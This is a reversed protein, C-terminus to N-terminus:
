EFSCNLTANQQLSPPTQVHEESRKGFMEVYLVSLGKEEDYIISM